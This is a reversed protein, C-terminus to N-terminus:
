WRSDGGVHEGRAGSVAREEFLKSQARDGSFSTESRDDQAFHSTPSASRDRLRLAQGSSASPAGHGSAGGGAEVPTEVAVVTGRGEGQPSDDGPGDIVFNWFGRWRAGTPSLLM